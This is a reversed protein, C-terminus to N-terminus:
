LNSTSGIILWNQFLIVLVFRVQKREAAEALQQLGDTPSPSSAWPSSMTAEAEAELRQKKLRMKASLMTKVPGKPQQQLSSNQLIDKSCLNIAENEESLRGEEEEEEDRDEIMESNFEKWVNKEVKTDSDKKNDREEVSVMETDENTHVNSSITMNRTTSTSFDVCIPGNAHPVDGLSFLRTENDAVAESLVGDANSCATKMMTAATESTTTAPESSPARSQQQQERPSERENDDM